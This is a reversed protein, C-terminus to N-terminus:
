ATWSAPAQDPLHVFARPQGARGAPPGPGPPGPVLRPGPLAAVPPGCCGSGKRAARLPCGILAILPDSGPDLLDDDRFTRLPVYEPGDARLTMVGPRSAGTSSAHSGRGGAVERIRAQPYHAALQGAQGGPRGPLPGAPDRRGHGGRTELSFPEPVAISQLLNEVGLLTREGTRPPTVALLSRPKRRRGSGSCCTEQRQYEYRYLRGRNSNPTPPRTGPVPAGSSSRPRRPPPRSASPFDTAGRWYCGMEGASLLAAVTAAGGAPRLSRGRHRDAAADQQFCCSSHPTRSSRGEALPRHHSKFLGRLPPGARGPHHVAVGVPAQPRAQGDSVMFAAGEPHQMISWVEDVVLLRPRPDQAAAAWVTETCVMAAAPRLEPELLHLDFVTVLAEHTLLDDGEDSLLHSCAAPPSPACCTPSLGGRVPNPTAAARRSGPLRLFRPLRHAGPARRLLGGPRPGPLVAARRELREGVM